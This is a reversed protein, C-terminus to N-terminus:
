RSLELTDLGSRSLLYEHLCTQLYGLGRHCVESVAQCEGPAVSAM